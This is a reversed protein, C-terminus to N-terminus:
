QSSLLLLVYIGIYYYYYYYAYAQTTYSIPHLFFFNFNFFSMLSLGFTITGPAAIGCAAVNYARTRGSVATQASRVRICFPQSIVRVLLIGHGRIEDIRELPKPRRVDIRTCQLVSITKYVNNFYLLQIGYLCIIVRRFHGSFVYSCMNRFYTIIPVLGDRISPFIM